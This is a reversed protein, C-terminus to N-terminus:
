EQTMDLVQGVSPEQQQEQRLVQSEELLPRRLSLCDRIEKTEKKEKKEWVAM